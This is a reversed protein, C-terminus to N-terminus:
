PYYMRFFVATNTSIPLNESTVTTSGPITIWDAPVAINVANSQLAWGLYNAPWSVNLRGGSATFTFTTGSTAPVAAVTLVGTTPNFIFTVGAPGVITTFNGSASGAGFLTFTDGVVLLDTGVNTVTLTGAYTATTIGAVKDSTRVGSTKNIRLAATGGSTMTVAGNLNLTGLTAAEGASLKGNVTIANAGQLVNGTGRLTQSAGLTYSTLGSLDLTSGTQVDIVASNGISGQVVLDGGAAAITTGTYTNTGTLTLVAGTGEVEVTGAGSIVGALTQGLTTTSIFTGNNTINPAYSGTTVTGGPPTGGSFLTVGAGANLQSVTGLILTAGNSITTTGAYTNEGELRMVGNGSVELATGGSGTTSVLAGTVDLDVGPVTQNSGAQVIFGSGVTGYGNNVVFEPDSIISTNTGGNVIVTHDIEWGGYQQMTSPTCGISGGNLNVVGYLHASFGTASPPVILQGGANITLPLGVHSGGSTTTVATYGMLASSGLAAVVGNSNITLSSSEYIGSQPQNAFNLDLEGSNIVTAGTYTYPVQGGTLSPGITLITGVRSTMTLGGTGSIIGTISQNNSGTYNLIGNDVIAAAYAGGVGPGGDGLDGGPGITLTGSGIVTSGTYTNLANLVNTGGANTLVGTGPFSESVPQNLVLSGTVTASKLTATGALLIPQNFTESASSNNTIGGAAAVALVDGPVNTLTFAGANNSFTISGVTYNNDMVPALGTTGAFLLRDGVYGPGSGSTWNLNADWNQNAALGDWIETSAVVTFTINLIAVNGNGDTITAPVSVLGPPTTPPVIITNTYVSVGSASSQQSFAVSSGGNVIGENAIVSVISPNAGTGNTITVTLVVSNNRLANTLPNGFGVGTPGLVTSYHLKVAGGSVVISYNAANLPAVDWIPATACLGSISSASMLVYDASQDLNAAASPAKIRVNNFNLTLAGSVAVRDSVGAALNTVSFGASAGSGLTLNGTVNLTGLPLVGEDSPSVIAGNGAAIGSPANVTGSGYLAQNPALTPATAQSVDFIAGGAVTISPSNAITGPAVLSLTGNSIITAGTYTNPASLTLLSSAGSVILTGTGSVIGSLTQGGGTLGTANIFTGNNVIAGAYAGTGLVGPDALILTGASITTNGTYTNVGDLRVTGAGSKIVGTDGLSSGHILTGTIDLDVGNTTGGSAINFTTGGAQSPIVTLASIVSINTGGNVVLGDDLDWTGYGYNAGGDADLTGGKMTLVGRIHSSHNGTLLGGPQITTPLSGLPSGSGNLANDNLLRVTSNTNITLSSSTYIGSNGQNNFGLDLEGSTVVTPGTYNEPGGYINLGNQITLIAGNTEVVTLGGTGSIQGQLTQSVGTNFLLTGNDVITGPYIGNGLTGSGVVELTGSSIRMNGTYTNAGSLITPSPGVTTLGGPGFFGDAIPQNLVVANSIAQVTVSGNTNPTGLLIQVGLTEVNTSNNIVASNASLTLTSFSASGITFSGAGPSFTVGSVSYGTEMNVNTETTGAFITQDGTAPAHGAVWNLGNGWTNDPAAGGNWIDSPGVITFAITATNTDMATDSATVTVAAPAPLASAAATATITATYVHPTGSLVMPVSTSGGVSSADVTVSNITPAGPAFDSVKISLNVTGGNAVPNPTATAQSFLVYPAPSFVLAGFNAKQASGNGTGTWNCLFTDSADTGAGINTVYGATYSSGNGNFNTQTAHVVTGSSDGTATIAPNGNQTAFTANVAAWSGSVVSTADFSLTFSSGGGTNTGVALPAITDNVGSLTYTTIACDNATPVTVSLNYTGPVPDLCYYIASGRTTGATHDQMIGRVLTNTATANTMLITAPESGVNAGHDEVCLVLVSAGATVTTVNTATGSNQDSVAPSGDHLAITASHQVASFGLDFNEVYPQPTSSGPDYTVVGTNASILCVSGNPYATNAYDYVRCYMPSSSPPGSGAAGSANTGSAITYAYIGGNTVPVSIGTWKLWDQSTYTFNAPSNYTALLTATLSGASPLSYIRLVMLGPGTGSGGGSYTGNNNGMQYAVSTLVGNTTSIFTEGPSNIGVGLGNNFGNDDYYNLGDPKEPGLSASTLISYVDGAGPTPAAAGTDTITQARAVSGGAALACCLAMLPLGARRFARSGFNSIQTKKVLNKLPQKM